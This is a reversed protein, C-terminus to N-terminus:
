PATGRVAWATATLSREGDPSGSCYASRVADEIKLRLGGELLAV